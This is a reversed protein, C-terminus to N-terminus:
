DMQVMVLEPFAASKETVRHGQGSGAVGTGAAEKQASPAEEGGCQQM